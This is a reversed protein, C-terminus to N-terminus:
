REQMRTSVYAGRGNWAWRRQRCHTGRAVLEHWALVGAGLADRGVEGRAAVASHAFGTGGAAGVGDLASGGARTPQLAAVTVHM